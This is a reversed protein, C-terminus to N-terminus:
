SANTLCEQRTEEHYEADINVLWPDFSGIGLATRAALLGTAIAHDQNNYKFMGSRGIPLLNDFGDLWTKILAIHKEYGLEMMPYAKESRLVFGSLVQKESQLLGAEKMEATALAILSDDSSRWLDDSKFTFYEATLPSVNASQGAMERSFNRYNSIRAVRVNKSHVYIWNDPFPSGEV